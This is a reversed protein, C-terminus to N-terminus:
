ALRFGALREQRSPESGYEDAETIPRLRADVRAALTAAFSTKGTGPPGYLLIGVGTQQSELAARLVSAAIEAETGLHAFANWPLPDVTIAGLLQDYFDAAPPIDRRLLSLLPDLVILTGQDGLCLLGSSLLKGDTTLQTAVEATSAGLLLAILGAERNFRSGGGRCESLADFLREVRRDLRYHLALALISTAVSDLELRAAIAALWQPAVADFADPTGTGERALAAEVKRWDRVPVGRRSSGGSKETDEPIDADSLGLAAAHQGLWATLAAAEPMRRDVAAHVTRACDLALLTGSSARRYPACSLM